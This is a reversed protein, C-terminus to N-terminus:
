PFKNAAPKLINTRGKIVEVISLAKEIRGDPKFRFIGDVGIFGNINTLEKTNLPHLSKTISRKRILVGMAAVADYALNSSLHPRYGFKKLFKEEYVKRFRNDPVALWSGALAPELMISSDLDWRTLGIIQLRNESDSNIIDTLDAAILPIRKNPSDTFIIANTHSSIVKQRLDEAVNSLNSIKDPYYVSFTVIGGNERVISRISNELDSQSDKIASIIGLRYKKKKVAYQVLKEARNIPNDGLIFIDNKAVTIDDTFAIIKLRAQKAFTSISKVKEPLFPGLIFNAGDTIASDVPGTSHDVWEGTDYIILDLNSTGLDQKALLAADRLSRGIYALKKEKSGFPALVAVKIPEDPDIASDTLPEINTVCASLGFIVLFLRIDIVLFRNLHIRMNFKMTYQCDRPLYYEM